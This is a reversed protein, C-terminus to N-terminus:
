TIKTLYNIYIFFRIKAEIEGRFFKNKTQKIANCEEFSIIQFIPNM